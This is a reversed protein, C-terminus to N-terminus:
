TLTVHKTVSHNVSSSSHKGKHTKVFFFFIANEFRMILVDYKPIGMYPNM